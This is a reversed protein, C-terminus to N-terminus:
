RGNNLTYTDNFTLSQAVMAPPSTPLTVLHSVPGPLAFTVVDTSLPVSNDAWNSPQNWNGDALTNTWTDAARLRPACVGMGVAAAVAAPALLKRRRLRVRKLM